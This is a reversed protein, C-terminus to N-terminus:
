MSARRSRVWWRAVLPRVMVMKTVGLFRGIKLGSREEEGLMWVKTRGKGGWGVRGGPTSFTLSIPLWPLMGMVVESALSCSWSMWHNLAWRLGGTAM